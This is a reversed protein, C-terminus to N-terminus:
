ERFLRLLPTLPAMERLLRLGAVYDEHVEKTQRIGFVGFGTAAAIGLSVLIGEWTELHSKAGFVAALLSALLLAAAGFSLRASTMAREFHWNLIQTLREAHGADDAVLLEEVDAVTM